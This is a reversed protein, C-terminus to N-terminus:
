AKTAWALRFREDCQCMQWIDIFDIQCDNEGEGGDVVAEKKDESAGDVESSVFQAVEQGLVPEDPCKQHERQVQEQDM